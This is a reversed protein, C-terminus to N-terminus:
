IVLIYKALIKWQLHIYLYWKRLPPRSRHFCNGRRYTEALNNMGTLTRYDDCGFLGTCIEVARQELHESDVYKGDAYLFNGVRLLLKAIDETGLVMLAVLPEVVQTQYQRCIQRKDEHFEPFASLFLAAIMEMFRQKEENVLSDKIVAQVLRHMAIIQGDGPRRILSYQELEGLAKPFEFTDAIMTKLPESLGDRGAELFEVLIEDPNLFAFLNLLQVAGPNRDKVMEFSLSWTTAVVYPYPWVGRPRQALVKDRNVTYVPLFRFIDKLSERIYAAAQEIALPLFGLEEVIQVAESNIEKNGNEVCNARLLLMDAATRRDLVEVELGQAPIGTANPVRTTIILHGEGDTVDPLYGMLISIDDVNDMVLLWHTQLDLWKLVDRTLSTADSSQTNGCKTVKAIEQFGLLLSALDGATIWFVTNYELKYRVVYEIAVQTKGVGGMGFLAVRHNFEQPKKQCLKDRLTKLLNTRGIFHPNKQYWPPVM